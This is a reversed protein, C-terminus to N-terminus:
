DNIKIGMSKAIIKFDEFSIQFIGRRFIFGWNKKNKTFSLEGILNQISVEKSPFFNVDRRFATFDEAMKVKYPEGKKIRGFATFKQCALKQGFTETPSYYIIWGMENLKKLPAEKGHCVQCFGGKIGIQVHERSAVAIWYKEM